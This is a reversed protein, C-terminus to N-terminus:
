MMNVSCARFTRRWRMSLNWIDVFQFSWDSDSQKKFTLNAFHQWHRRAQIWVPPLYYNSCIIYRHHSKSFTQRNKLCYSGTKKYRNLSKSFHVHLYQTSPEIQWKLNGATTTPTPGFCFNSDSMIPNYTDLPDRFFHWIGDSKSDM